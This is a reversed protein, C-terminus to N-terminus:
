NYHLLFLNMLMKEREIEIEIKTKWRLHFVARHLVACFFFWFIVFCFVFKGCLLVAIIHKVWQYSTAIIAGRLYIDHDSTSM